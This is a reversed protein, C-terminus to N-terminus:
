GGARRIAQSAIQQLRRNGGSISSLLENTIATRTSAPANEFDAFNNVSYGSVNGSMVARNIFSSLARSNTNLTQVIRDGDLNQVTNQTGLTSTQTTTSRSPFQINPFGGPDRPRTNFPNDFNLSGSNSFRVPRTAPPSFIGSIRDLFSDGLGPYNQNTGLPSPTTDYLTEQSGFGAPESELSVDGESYLVGEYVVSMTNEMLGAADSADVSDHQWKEVLPNILTYARWRQRSLQFIKIMNFFPSAPTGDLGYRPVRESYLDRPNFDVPSGPNTFKNGDRFYYRYYEEFLKSSVSRNDDHFRISVNDYSVGTQVNKNRNYQKKTEINASFSPLDASKVLMSLEKGLQATNQASSQASLSLFFVVHYLYKQKPAFQFSNSTFFNHAHRADRLTISDQQARISGSKVIAM